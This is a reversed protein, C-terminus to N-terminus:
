AMEANGHRAAGLGDGPVALGHLAIDGVLRITLSYPNSEVFRELFGDKFNAHFSRTSELISRDKGFFEHSSSAFLEFRDNSYRSLRGDPDCNKPASACVNSASRMAHVRCAAGCYIERPARRWDSSISRGPCSKESHKQPGHVSVVM